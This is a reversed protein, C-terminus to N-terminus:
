RKMYALVSVLMVLGIAVGIAVGLAVVILLGPDFTDVENFCLASDFIAFDWHVLIVSKRIVVITIFLTNNEVNHIM